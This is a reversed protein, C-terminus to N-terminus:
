CSCAPHGIARTFRCHTFHSRQAPATEPAQFRYKVTQGANFGDFGAVAASMEGIRGIFVDAAAVGAMGFHHADGEIRSDDAVGIQKFHKEDNVIGGRQIGLAVVDTRLVARRDVKM